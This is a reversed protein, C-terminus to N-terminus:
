LYLFSFQSNLLSSAGRKASDDMTSTCDASFWLIKGENKRVYYNLGNSNPDVGDRKNQKFSINSREFNSNGRSLLTVLIPSM